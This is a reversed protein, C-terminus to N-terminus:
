QKVIQEATYIDDPQDAENDLKGACSADDDDDSDSCDILDPLQDPADASPTNARAFSDESLDSDLLYPEDLDRTPQSTPDIYRKMRAVHVTTSVRRNDMARLVCHVPSLFEIICYPGHYNHAIKKSLGRRNKPTYVWVKDGLSFPPPVAQLDHLEKMKQQARQTNEAAIRRVREVNEVIRARHEAVLPSMERPPLLATDMPLLPERGYLMYFPSEGTVESPSVRYAFLVSNLHEDWDKQNSSVYMSLSQALTGNFREVLGNTQPRYGSTFIKDTNMLFCVERFLSSLFYFGRPAGHRSVLENVFIEVVTKAEINPHRISRDM